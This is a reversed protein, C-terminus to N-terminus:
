GTHNLVLVDDEFIITDGNPIIFERNRIILVVLGDKNKMGEALTKGKMKSDEAVRKEILFAKDSKQVSKIALTLVDNKRLLTEGKPAIGEGGREVVAILSDPPMAIDKIKSDCWPHDPELLLRIFEVPTDGSYDSFTKMVDFNKDIMDLNKSLLPLLSGQVLISFLVVFFAIHFIDNKTEIRMMAMVAFAISAAGRLGAWSVVMKQGLKSRLPTLIAFVALPRAAFTIFVAILLAKRAVSPLVSPFALLGLLFFLLMQMIGTVGDFFHVLERKNRIDSNGLIIGTIYASLYGNGGIVIPLSFSLLAIAMVLAAEFGATEIRVKRLVARGAFTILLAAAIGFAIQTYLMFLINNVSAEGQMVSIAILTLIYAFPDNSGSELELLSATHYKLSLRKSRLISFVSAADTSGIVSGILLSEPFAISLVFHCFLATFLTTLIVGLSSMLVSPLAVSRAEEWNTGFGGYFMIFILAMTAFKEALEYNDFDIKVLGDSGFFMGLLIFVLLMPIGLRSSIRNLLICCLIVVSILLLVNNM